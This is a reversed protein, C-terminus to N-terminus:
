FSLDKITVARHWSSLIGRNGQNSAQGGFHVGVLKRWNGTLMTLAMIYQLVTIWSEYDYLERILHFCFFESKFSYLMIKAQAVSLVSSQNNFDTQSAAGFEKNQGECTYWSKLVLWSQGTLFSMTWKGILIFPFKSVCKWCNRSDM